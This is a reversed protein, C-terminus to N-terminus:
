NEKFLDDDDDDEVLAVQPEKRAGTSDSTQQDRTSPAGTGAGEQESATPLPSTPTQPSVPGEVITAQVKVNSESKELDETFLGM